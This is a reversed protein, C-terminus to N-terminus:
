GASVAAFLLYVVLVPGLALGMPFKPSTWSVWDPAIARVPPLRRAVRHLLFSMPLAACFLFMFPIADSLAVFPAMAAAYKADGAGVMRFMNLAFGIALVVALHSWRWLYETFPLAALGVVAFCLTLAVVARNPIKMFKLDSWAVWLGIVTVFPLFALAVFPSQTM